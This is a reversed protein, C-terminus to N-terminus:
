YIFPRGLTSPPTEPATLCAPSAFEVNPHMKEFDTNKLTPGTLNTSCKQPTSPVESVSESAKYLASPDNHQSTSVFMRTFLRGHQFSDGSDSFSLM